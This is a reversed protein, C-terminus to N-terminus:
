FSNQAWTQTPTVRSLGLCASFSVSSVSLNSIEQFSLRRYSAYMRLCMQPCWKGARSRAAHFFIGCKITICFITPRSHNRSSIAESLKDENVGKTVWDKASHSCMKLLLCMMLRVRPHSCAVAYSPFVDVHSPGCMNGRVRLACRTSCCCGKQRWTKAERRM